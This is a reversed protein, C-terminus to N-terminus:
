LGKALRQRLRRVAVWVQELYDPVVPRQCILLSTLFGLGLGVELLNKRDIWAIEVDSLAQRSLELRM